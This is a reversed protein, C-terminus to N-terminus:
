VDSLAQVPQTASHPVRNVVTLLMGILVVTFSIAIRVTTLTAIVGIVPGGIIEGFSNFQGNVSLITARVNSTIHQNIWAEMLPGAVSILMRTLWLGILVLIFTPSWAVILVSIIMAAYVFVLVRVVKDSDALNVRRRVVETAILTLPIVGASIIGFWIVEGFAGIPPLTFHELVLAAWMRGFGEGFGGFVLTVVFIWLFVSRLRIYKVGERFTKFLDGWTEREEPAVRQFGTEPMIFILIIGLATLLVGAVAIALQMSINGLIVCLIIGVLGCIPAVQAGRVFAQSAKEQGIEDVIWASLAGSIFTSGLGAIVMGLVFIMLLPMSAAILTGLGLLVIGIIISLRRSYVDAVVGTPIEFLFITTEYATGPLVLEFLNVGIERLLYLPFITFALSSALSRMGVIFLYVKYANAKVM